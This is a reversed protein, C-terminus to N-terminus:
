PVVKIFVKEQGNEMRLILRKSELKVLYNSAYDVFLNKAYFLPSLEIKQNFSEFNLYHHKGETYLNILENNHKYFGRKNDLPRKNDVWKSWSKNVLVLFRARKINVAFKLYALKRSLVGLFSTSPRKFFGNKEIYFTDPIKKWNPLNFYTNAKLLYFHYLLIEFEDNYTLIGKNWKVKGPLGEAVCFDFYPKLNGKVEERKIIHMMSEAYYDTDFIDVGNSVADHQFNCEDYCFHKNSSMVNRYDKSNKFLTNIKDSNRYLMFFGSPYDHRVSITEYEELINDNIFNTIKGFVLDIDCHGWFDFETLLDQFLFGYTPKFDCLKYPNRLDVTFRLKESAIDEVEALSKFIFKLNRPYNKPPTIDSIIM